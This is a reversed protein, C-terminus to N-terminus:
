TRSIVGLKRPSAESINGPNPFYMISAATDACAARPWDEPWCSRRQRTAQEWNKASLRERAWRALSRRCVKLHEGREFFLPETEENKRQVYCKKTLIIFFAPGNPPWIGAGFSPGKKPGKSYNINSLHIATGNQPRFRAGFCTRMETGANCFFM